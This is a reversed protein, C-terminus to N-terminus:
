GARRTSIWAKGIFQESTLARFVIDSMTENNAIAHLKLSQVLDQPLKVQLPVQPGTFDAATTPAERKRRSSEKPEDSADAAPAAPTTEAAADQSKTKWSPRYSTYEDDDASM